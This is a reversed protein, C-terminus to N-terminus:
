LRSPHHLITHHNGNTNIEQLWKSLSTYGEESYKYGQSEHTAQRPQAYAVEQSRVGTSMTFLLLFAVLRKVRNKLTLNKM